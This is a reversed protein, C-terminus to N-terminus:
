TNSTNLKYVSRFCCGCGLLQKLRRQRVVVLNLIQSAQIWVLLRVRQNHYASFAELAFDARARLVDVVGPLHLTNVGGRVSDHYITVAAVVDFYM